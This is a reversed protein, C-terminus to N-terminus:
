FERTYFSDLSDSFFNSLNKLKEVGHLAASRKFGPRRVMEAALLSVQRTQRHEASVHVDSARM